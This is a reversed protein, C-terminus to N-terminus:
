RQQAGVLAHNGCVRPMDGYVLRACDLAATVLYERERVRIAFERCAGNLAAQTGIVLVRIAVVHHAGAHDIERM